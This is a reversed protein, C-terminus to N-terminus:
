GIKYHYRGKADALKEFKERSVTDFLFTSSEVADKYYELLIDHLIQDTKSRAVWPEVKYTKSEFWSSFNCLDYSWCRCRASLWRLFRKKM